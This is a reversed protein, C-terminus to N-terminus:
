KEDNGVSLIDVYRSPLEDENINWIANPGYPYALAIARKRDAAAKETEGLKELAQARMSLDAAFELRYQRDIKNAYPNEGTMVTDIFNLRNIGTGGGYMRNVPFCKFTEREDQDPCKADEAMALSTEAEKNRGLEKLTKTRFGYSQVQASCIKCASNCRLPEAQHIEINKNVLEMVQKWQAAQLHKQALKRRGISAPNLLDPHYQRV